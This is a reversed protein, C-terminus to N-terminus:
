NSSTKSIYVLLCTPHATISCLFAFYRNKHPPINHKEARERVVDERLKYLRDSQNEFVLEFNELFLESDTWRMSVHENRKSWDYEDIEPSYMVVWRAFVWPTDLAQNYYQYNSELIYSKLPLGAAFTMFDHSARTILIKGGDYNGRLAAALEKQDQAKEPSVQWEKRILSFSDKYVVRYM